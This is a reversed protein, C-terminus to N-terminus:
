KVAGALKALIAAEDAVTGKSKDAPNVLEARLEAVPVGAAVLREWEERALAIKRVLARVESTRADRAKQEESRNDPVEKAKSIEEKAKSVAEKAGALTVGKALLPVVAKAIKAKEAHEAKKADSADAPLAPLDTYANLQAVTFVSVSDAVKGPNALVWKAARIAQGLNDYRKAAETTAAEKAALKTGDKANVPLLALAREVATNVLEAKLAAMFSKAEEATKCNAAAGAIVYVGRAKSQEGENVLAVGVRISEEPSADMNAKTMREGKFDYAALLSTVPRATQQTNNEITNM